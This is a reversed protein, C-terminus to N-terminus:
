RRPRSRRPLPTRAQLVVRSSYEAKSRKFTEIAEDAIARSITRAAVMKEICEIVTAM